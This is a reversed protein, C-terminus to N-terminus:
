VRGAAVVRKRNGAARVPKAAVPATRRLSKLGVTVATTVFVGALVAVAFLLPKGIHTAAFVGGYPYSINTGFVMVLSGTTAGGLMTAPLVRLPDALAFPVTGEPIFALGFLWAVKGYRRESESFLKGRVLTALSLAIPPVMGAAVVAAMIVMNQPALKSPDSTQMMVSGYAVAAKAVPGGLDSCALAGLLLGLAVFNHFQVQTLETQLWEVLAKLATGAFAYMVAGTFVVAVMPVVVTTTIERIRQPVPIRVLALTATGALLGAVLGGFAGAEIGLAAFGGFLGPIVGQRGALGYAIYGAVPVPLVYLATLAIKLMLAAWTVPLTWDGTMLAQSAGDAIYPGGLALALIVLGGASAVLPGLYPTGSRLWGGFRAVFSLNKTVGQNMPITAVAPTHLPDSLHAM